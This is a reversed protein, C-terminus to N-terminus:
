EMKFHKKFFNLMELNLNPRQSAHFYLSEIGLKDMEAKLKHGFIPHHIGQGPRSNEPLPADAENYFMLIPPDDKTLHKIASVEDYLPKLKPDHMQDESKLGYVILM